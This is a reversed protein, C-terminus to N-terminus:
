EFEKTSEKLAKDMVDIMMKASNRESESVEPDTSIIREDILVELRARESDDLFGAVLKALLHDMEAFQTHPHHLDNAIRAQVTTWFLGVKTSLTALNTTLIALRDAFEKDRLEIRRVLDQHQTELLDSREKRAAEVSRATDARLSELAAATERREQRADGHAEEEQQDRKKDVRARRKWFWTAVFMLVAGLLGGVIIKALDSV